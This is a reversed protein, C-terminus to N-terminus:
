LLLLLLLLEQKNEQKNEISSFTVGSAGSSYPGGMIRLKSRQLESLTFNPFDVYLNIIPSHYLNIGRSFRFNDLMSYVHKTLQHVDFSVGQFHLYIHRRLLSEIQNISFIDINRRDIEVFYRDGYDNVFAM